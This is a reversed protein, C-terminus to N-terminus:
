AAGWLAERDGPARSCGWSLPMLHTGWFSGTTSPDEELAPPPTKLARKM